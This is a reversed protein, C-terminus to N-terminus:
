LKTMCSSQCSTSCFINLYCHQVSTLCAHCLALWKSNLTMRNDLSVSLCSKSINASFTGLPRFMRSKSVYISSTLVSGISSNLLKYKHPISFLISRVSFLKTTLSSTIQVMFSCLPDMHRCIKRISNIHMSNFMVKKITIDRDTIGANIILNSKLM